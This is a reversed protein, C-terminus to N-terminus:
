QDHSHENHEEQKEVPVQEKSEMKMMQGRMMPMPAMIKKFNELGITKRISVLGNVYLDAMALSIDNSNKIEEKVKSPDFNPDNLMDMVKFHSIKFDAEKQVIPYLYMENIKSLENKQQDTLELNNAKMLLHHIMMGYMSTHKGGMMGHMGMMGPGPMGKQGVKQQMPSQAFSFNALCIIVAISIIFRRM